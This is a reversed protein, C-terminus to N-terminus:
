SCRKNVVNSLPARDLAARKHCRGGALISACWLSAEASLLSPTNICALLVRWYRTKFVHLQRWSNPALAPGIGSTRPQPNAIQGPLVEVRPSLLLLWRPSAVVSGVSIRM